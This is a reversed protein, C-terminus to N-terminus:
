VEFNKWEHKVREKFKLFRKVGGIKVIIIYHSKTKGVM